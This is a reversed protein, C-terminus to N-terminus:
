AAVEIGKLQADEPDVEYPEEDGYQHFVLVRGRLLWVIYHGNDTNDGNAVSAGLYLDCRVRDQERTVERIFDVMVTEPDFRDLPMLAGDTEGRLELAYRYARRAFAKGGWHSFLVVSSRVGENDTCRFQVSVRDGM